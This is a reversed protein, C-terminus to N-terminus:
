DKPTKSYFESIRKDDIYDVIEFYDFVFTLDTVNEVDTSNSGLVISGFNQLVCGFFMINLISKGLNDTIEVAITFGGPDPEIEGSVYDIKSNFFEIIRKYLRFKEDMILSITIPDYEVSDGVVNFKKGSRAYMPIPSHNIGPLTISQAYVFDKGLFPLFVKYNSSQSYNNFNNLSTSSNM